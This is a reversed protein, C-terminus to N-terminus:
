RPTASRVAKLNYTGTGSVAGANLIGGTLDLTGSSVAVSLVTDTGTNHTVTVATNIIADDSSTPVHNTMTTADLWHSSDNWLGSGGTWNVANPVTRDELGELWPRCLQSLRKSRAPRSRRGVWKVVRHVSALLM